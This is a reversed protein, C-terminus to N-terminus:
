EENVEQLVILGRLKRVLEATDEETMGVIDPEGDVLDERMILAPGCIPCGHIRIGYLESAVPNVPLSKLLGCDDVLMLYKHPLSRCRVIEYYSDLAAHIVDNIDDLPNFEKIEITGDTSIQMYFKNKLM